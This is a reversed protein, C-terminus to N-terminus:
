RPAAPARVPDTEYGWIRPGVLAIGDSSHWREDVPHAVVHLEQGIALDVTQVVSASDVDVLTILDPVSALVVGALTAVLNENQFDVRLHEGGESELSLVGRPWGDTTHQVIEVAVGTFVVSGDVASLFGALGEAPGAASAGLAAGIRVCDSLAGRSALRACDGATMHYASILAVLGVEPLVGRLVGSLTVDHGSTFEALVGNSGVMTIPSVPLGALRPLTMEIGPFCRRMLDADLCPLGLHAAVAVPLTGNVAALQVPLVAACEQGARAEVAARLMRIEHTGPLKEVLAYPAGGALVPLVLADPDLEAATCLRVPGHRTIAATLIQRPLYTDGGGGSGYVAAGRVLDDVVDLTVERV